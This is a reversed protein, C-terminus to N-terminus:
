RNLNELVHRDSEFFSKFRNLIFRMFPNKIYVAHYTYTFSAGLYSKIGPDTWGAILMKLNNKICFDLNYFWSVFYLNLKRADPYLFGVYKDILYGGSIFCLNFGIIKDQHRYIFVIGNNASDRFVKKFFLMTLKDFHIESKRYVNLYLGYLLDIVPDTFFDDGTKIQEIDLESLSHLKRKIDKRRARSLKQLYEDTSNFNVPVYALAQGYLIFFGNSGLHTILQASFKNEEGSLLPSHLPIDKIILFQLRTNNLKSLASKRLRDPKIDCPFLAYESVTTGIFFVMPKLLKEIFFPLLKRYKQVHRKIKENATTFLDFEAMFGPVHKDNVAVSIPEFGEPPEALFAQVIGEPELLNLLYKKVPGSHM